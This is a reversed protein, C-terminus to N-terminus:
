LQKKGRGSTEPAWLHCVIGGFLLTIVCCWLAMHIGFRESVIPLLFTGGGAGFRSIAVTLGVGSGRLETSFLEPPYSFEPVISAALVLAFATIMILAILPPMSSWVIMVTLIAASVYFTWLLYARRTVIGYVWLGAFVGVLTFVNYLAGSANPNQINMKTLVLPLFISIAFFPLVQAFFFIGSVMTKRWQEPAFLAFWSTSVPKEEKGEPLGYQEGLCAHINVLAEQVRGKAILWLPSEPTGFRIVLAILSPVASTCLVIRWGDNGFAAVVGDMFFGVIYSISYGITWFVLLWGLIGARKQVPTWESLLPIGVTYDAGILMGLFFRVVAILLPDSIFFQLVSVIATLLMLSTYLPKRGIKDAVIGALLSGFFIGFMSGAGILGMWFSTLGLPGVAYNLSIGVIGLTYGDSIQGMFTGATIKKHIASFPAEEFNLQRVGSMGDNEKCSLPSLKYGRLRKLSLYVTNRYTTSFNLVFKFLMDIMGCFFTASTLIM